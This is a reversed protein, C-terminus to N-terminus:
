DPPLWGIRSAIERAIDGPRRGTTDIVMDAVDNAEMIAVLEAARTAEWPDEDEGARRSIRERNVDMDATLRVVRVDAGPIAQRYREHDHRSEVVDAIVFRESGAELSNRAVDALNRFGLRTNFRDDAPRPWTDRLWDMDIVTHPIERATLLDGLHQSVTTKGMGIPGTIVVVPVAVQKTM